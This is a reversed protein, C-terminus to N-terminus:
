RSELVSKAVEPIAKDGLGNTENESVVDIATIRGDEVEVKLM